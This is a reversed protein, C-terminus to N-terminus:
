ELSCQTQRAEIEPLGGVTWQLLPAFSALM